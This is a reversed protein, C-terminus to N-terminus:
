QSGPQRRDGAAAVRSPTDLASGSRHSPAEPSLLLLCHSTHPPSLTLASGESPSLVPSLVRSRWRSTEPSHAPSLGTDEKSFPWWGVECSSELILYSFSHTQLVQCLAQCRTLGSEHLKESNKRCSVMRRGPPTQQQHRSKLPTPLTQQFTCSLPFGFHLTDGKRFGEGLSSQVRFGALSKLAADATLPCSSRSVCTVHRLGTGPRQAWRPRMVQSTAGHKQTALGLCNQTQM